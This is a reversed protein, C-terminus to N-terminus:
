TLMEPTLLSWLGLPQIPYAFNRTRGTRGRHVFSFGRNGYHILYWTRHSRRERIPRLIRGYFLSSPGLFRAEAGPKLGKAEFWNPPLM